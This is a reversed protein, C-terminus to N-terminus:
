ELVDLAVRQARRERVEKEQLAIEETHALENGRLALDELHQATAVDLAVSRLLPAVELVHVVVDYTHRVLDVREAIEDAVDDVRVEGRDRVPQVLDHLDEGGDGRDEEDHGDDGAGEAL